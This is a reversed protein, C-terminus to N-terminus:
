RRFEMSDACEEPKAHKLSLARIILCIADDQENAGLHGSPLHLNITTTM